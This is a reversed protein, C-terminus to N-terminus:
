DFVHIIFSMLQEKTLYSKEAEKMSDIQESSFDSTVKVALCM